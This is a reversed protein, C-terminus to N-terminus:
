VEARSPQTLAQSLKAIHFIFTDKKSNDAPKPKSPAPKVPNAVRHPILGVKRVGQPKLNLSSSTGQVPKATPLAPTLNRSRNERKMKNKPPPLISFLGSGAKSPQFKVTEKM